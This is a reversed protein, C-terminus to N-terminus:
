DLAPFNQENFEIKNTKKPATQKAQKQSGQAEAVLNMGGAHLFDETHKINKKNYVGTDKSKPKIVQVNPDTSKVDSITVREEKNMFGTNFGSKAVYEDLTMIEEKPEAAEVTEKATGEEEKKDINLENRIEADGGVNGKGHGGKKADNTFAPRGTGSQREFPRKEGSKYDGKDKPADKVRAHANVDKVVNVGYHERKINDEARAEKKTPKAESKGTQTKQNEDDSDQDLVSFINKNM